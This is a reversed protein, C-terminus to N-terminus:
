NCLFYSAMLHFTPENTSTPRTHRPLWPRSIIERRPGIRRLFPPHLRSLFVVPSMPNGNLMLSATRDSSLRVQLTAVGNFCEADVKREVVVGM